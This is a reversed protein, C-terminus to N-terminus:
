DKLFKVTKKFNMLLSNVLEEVSFNSVPICYFWVNYDEYDYDEAISNIDIRYKNQHIILRFYIIDQNDYLPYLDGTTLNLYLDRKKTQNM